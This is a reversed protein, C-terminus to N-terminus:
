QRIAILNHSLRQYIQRKYVDSVKPPFDPRQQDSPFLKMWEPEQHQVQRKYVDLHTYSVAGTDIVTDQFPAGRDEKGPLVEPLFVGSSGLLRRFVNYVTLM